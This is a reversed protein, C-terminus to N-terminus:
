SCRAAHCVALTSAPIPQRGMAGIRRSPRTGLRGTVRDGVAIAELSACRTFWDPLSIVDAEMASGLDATLTELAGDLEYLCPADPRAQRRNRASRTPLAM